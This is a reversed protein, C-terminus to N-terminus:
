QVASVLSFYSYKSQVHGIGIRMVGGAMYLWRLATRRVSSPPHASNLGEQGFLQCLHVRWSPVLLVRWLRLGFVQEQQVQPVLRVRMQRSCM